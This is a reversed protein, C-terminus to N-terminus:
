IGYIVCVYCFRLYVEYNINCDTIFVIDDDLYLMIKLRHTMFIATILEGYVNLWWSVVTIQSADELYLLLPLVNDRFKDFDNGDAGSSVAVNELTDIM